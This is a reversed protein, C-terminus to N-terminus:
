ANLIDNQASVVELFMVCGKIGPQLGGARFKNGGGIGSQFHGLSQLRPMHHPELRSRIGRADLWDQVKCKLFQNSGIGAPAGTM